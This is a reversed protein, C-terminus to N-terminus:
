AAIEVASLDASMASAKDLNQGQIKLTQTGTSGAVIKRKGGNWLFTYQGPGVRVRALITTTADDIQVLHFVSERFSSVVFQLNNYEADATLTLTAGTIDAMSLSGAALEGNAAVEIGAGESTVPLKGESDLQPLVVNGSSDKFAFGISGRRTSPAVGEQISHLSEGAETAFDAVIPFVEKVEAM